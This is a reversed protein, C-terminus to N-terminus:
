VTSWAAAGGVDHLLFEVIPQLRQPARCRLVDVIPSRLHGTRWGLRRIETVTLTGYALLLAPGLHGVADIGRAVTAAVVERAVPILATRDAESLDALQARIADEDAADAATRLREAPTMPRQSRSRSSTSAPVASAATGATGPVRARGARRPRGSATSWTAVGRWGRRSRTPIARSSAFRRANSLGGPTASARSFGSRLKSISRCSADSFAAM